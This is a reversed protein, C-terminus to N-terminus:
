SRDPKAFGRAVAVLAAQSSTGTKQFANRLHFRVTGLGLDLAAAIAKCRCGAQWSTAVDAERQTLHFNDALAEKDIPPPADPETMLMARRRRVCQAMPISRSIPTLTVRLGPRQSPRQLKLRVAAPGGNRAGAAVRAIAARLERTGNLTAAALGALLAVAM